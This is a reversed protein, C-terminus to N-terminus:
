GDASVCGSIVEGSVNVPRLAGSPWVSFTRSKQPLEASQGDFTLQEGWQIFFSSAAM